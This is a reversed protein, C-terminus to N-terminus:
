DNWAGFFQFFCSVTSLIFAYVWKRYRYTHLCYFYLLLLLSCNRKSRIFIDFLSVCLPKFYIIFGFPVSTKKCFIAFFLGGRFSFFHLFFFILHIFWRFPFLFRCHSPFEICSIRILNKMESRKKLLLRYIM